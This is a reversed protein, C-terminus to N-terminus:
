TPIYLPRDKAALATLARIHDWEASDEGLSWAMVGGLRLPTVIERFKRRMLDVSDWTWFLRQERDWFWMGGEDDDMRGGALATRFSKAADPGTCGSSYASQCMQGCFDTSNGCFGYQSCCPAEAHGACTLGATAAGCTGDTTMALKAPVPAPSVNAAEFTMAGSTGADSGDANEAAVIRCGVPNDCTTNAPTEFYKAYFAFGLNIKSAPAGIDLYNYVAELSGVVSTHHNTENSRRMMLDYSMLNIMDVAAFISKAQYTGYAVMDPKTGPVAISLPKCGLAAKLAHLFLPFTTIEATKNANPIQKYDAGNGGPYEWDVDVFDFGLDDTMKKVNKAYLARSENTSAGKSFGATDGWGGIAVGVKTDNGFMARVDSVKMFPEYKGPPDTTFLSSNAFAMIAHTVGATVDKGPLTATHYQDIYVVKRLPTTSAAATIALGAVALGRLIENSFKM